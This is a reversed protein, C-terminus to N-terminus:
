SRAWKPGCTGDTSANMRGPRWMIQVLCEVRLLVEGRDVVPDGRRDVTSPERRAKALLAARDVGSLVPEVVLHPWSRMWQGAALMVGPPSQRNIWRLRKTHEGRWMRHHFARSMMMTTVTTSFAPSIEM